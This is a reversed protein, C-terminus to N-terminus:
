LKKLYENLETQVSQLEEVANELHFARLNANRLLLFVENHPDKVFGAEDLLFGAQNESFMHSLNFYRGLKEACIQTQRDFDELDKRIVNQRFAFVSALHSRLPLDKLLNADGTQVMIDFTAPPFSRFVGRQYVEAFYSYAM